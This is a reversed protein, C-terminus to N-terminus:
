HLGVPCKGGAGGGGWARVPSVAWRACLLARPESIIGLGPGNVTGLLCGTALLLMFTAAEQVALDEELPSTM